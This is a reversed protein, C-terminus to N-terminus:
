HMAIYEDLARSHSLTLSLSLSLSQNIEGDDDAMSGPVDHVTVMLTRYLVRITM